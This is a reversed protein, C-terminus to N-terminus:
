EDLEGEQIHYVISDFATIHKKNKLIDQFFFADGSKIFPTNTIGIGGQYVNGEPYGGSVVFDKKYFACPMFLGGPYARPEKIIEAYL